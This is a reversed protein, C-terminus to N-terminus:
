LLHLMRGFVSSPRQVVPFSFQSDGSKIKKFFIKIRVLFFWIRIFLTAVDIVRMHIQSVMLWKSNKQQRYYKKFIKMNEIYCM